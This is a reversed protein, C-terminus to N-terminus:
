AAQEVGVGVLKHERGAIAERVLEDMASWTCDWSTGALFADARRRREHADEHM